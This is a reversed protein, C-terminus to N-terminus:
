MSSFNSPFEDSFGGVEASMNQTNASLNEDAFAEKKIQNSDVITGDFDFIIAETNLSKM